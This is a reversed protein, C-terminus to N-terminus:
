PSLLIFRRRNLIGFYLIFAWIVHYLIVLIIWFSVDALDGLPIEGEILGSLLILPLGLVYRIFTKIGRSM